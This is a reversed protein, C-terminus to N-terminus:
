LTPRPPLDLELALVPRPTESHCGREVLSASQRYCGSHRSEKLRLSRACRNLYLRCRNEFEKSCDCRTHTQSRNVTTASSRCHSSVRLFSQDKHRYSALALALVWALALALALVWALVWALVLVSELASRPAM